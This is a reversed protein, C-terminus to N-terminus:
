YMYLNYVISTSYEHMNESDTQHVTYVSTVSCYMHLHQVRIKVFGYNGNVPSSARQANMHALPKGNDGVSFFTYDKNNGTPPAGLAFKVRQLRMPGGNEVLAMPDAPSANTNAGPTPQQSPCSTSATSALSLLSPAHPASTNSRRRMAAGHRQKEKQLKYLLYHKRRLRALMTKEEEDPEEVNRSHVYASHASLHRAIEESEEHAHAAGPGVGTGSGSGSCLGSGSGSLGNMMNMTNMSHGNPLVAPVLHGNATSSLTEYTAGNLAAPAGAFLAGDTVSSVGVGVMQRPIRLFISEGDNELAIAGVSWKRKLGCDDGGGAGGAAGVAPSPVAPLGYGSNASYQSASM